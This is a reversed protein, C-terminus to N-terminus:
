ENVQFADLGWEKLMMYDDLSAKAALRIPIQGLLQALAPDVNMELLAAQVAAVRTGDLRPHAVLPHPDVERTQYLVRLRRQLAEPQERLTRMVGGGAVTARLAVNFYVSSHTKVYRPTISLGHLRALEARMLLSAGLANPAPFAIEAGDLQGLETIDSDAHVVLIGRLSRSSDKIIPVYGQAEHAMVAHWPNMYALDYEGRSFAKEFDPISKAPVLQFGAGTKEGLYDLVPQWIRVLHQSEFQPVVGVRIDEAWATLSLAFLTVLGLIRRM